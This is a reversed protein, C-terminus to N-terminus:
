EDDEEEEDEEAEAGEPWLVKSYLPPAEVDMDELENKVAHVLICLGLVPLGDDPCTEHFHMVVGTGDERKPEDKGPQFRLMTDLDFGELEELTLPAEEPMHENLYALMAEWDDEHFRFLANAAVKVSVPDRDAFREALLAAHKAEGEWLSAIIEEPPTDTDDTAYFGRDIDEKLGLLRELSELYITKETGDKFSVEYSDVVFFLLASRSARSLDEFVTPPDAASLKYSFDETGTLIIGM